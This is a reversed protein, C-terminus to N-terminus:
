NDPHPIGSLGDGDDGDDSPASSPLLCPGVLKDSMSIEDYGYPAIVPAFIAVLVLVVLIVLGLIATRNRVLRLWAEYVPGTKRNKGKQAAKKAEIKQIAPTMNKAM